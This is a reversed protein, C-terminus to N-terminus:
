RWAALVAESLRDLSSSGVKWRQWHLDVDLGGPILDVLPDVLGTTVQEPLLLGWGFGLRVAEGYDATAPVHHRPGGM